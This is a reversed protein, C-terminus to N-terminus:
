PSYLLTLFHCSTWTKIDKLRRYNLYNIEIQADDAYCHFYIYPKRIMNSLPLMHLTFRVPGLVGPVGPSAEM